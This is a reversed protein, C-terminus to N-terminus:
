GGIVTEHDKDLAEPYEGTIQEFAVAHLRKMEAAIEAEGIAVGRGCFDGALKGAVGGDGPKQLEAQIIEVAYAEAESGSLGMREAAWSGLLKNRRSLVKFRQEQDLKYKAEESKEREEFADKM